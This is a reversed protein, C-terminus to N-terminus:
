RYVSPNLINGPLHDNATNPGRKRFSPTPVRFSQNCKGLPKTQKGVRRRKPAPNKCNLEEASRCQKLMRNVDKYSKSSHLPKPVNLYPLLAPAIKTKQGKNIYFFPDIHPKLFRPLKNRPMQDKPIVPLKARITQNKDGM